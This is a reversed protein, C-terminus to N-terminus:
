IRFWDVGDSILTASEKTSTLNINEAVDDIKESGNRLVTVLLSGKKKLYIVKSAEPAPLTVSVPGLGSIVYVKNFEASFDSSKGEISLKGTEAELDAVRGDLADAQSTLEDKTESFANRIALIGMTLRDVIKEFVEPAFRGLDRLKAPQFVNTSFKIRLTYEQKLGNPNTWEFSPDVNLIFRADTNPIGISEFTYHTDISLQITEDLPTIIEAEITDAEFTPFSIPFIIQETGDGVYTLIVPTNLPIM